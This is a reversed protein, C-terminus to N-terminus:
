RESGTPAYHYEETLQKRLEMPVAFDSPPVSFIGLQIIIAKRGTDQGTLDLPKSFVPPSLVFGPKGVMRATWLDAGLVGSNRQFKRM